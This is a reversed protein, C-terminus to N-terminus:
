GQLLRSWKIPYKRRNKYSFIAFLRRTGQKFPRAWFLGIFDDPFKGLGLANEDMAALYLTPVQELEPAVKMYEVAKEKSIAMWASRGIEPNRRLYDNFREVGERAIDESIVIIRLHGLFVKDAVEQQLNNMADEITHGVVSVDM